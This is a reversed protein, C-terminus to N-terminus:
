SKSNIQRKLKDVTKADQPEEAWNVCASGIFINISLNSNIKYLRYKCEYKSRSPPHSPSRVSRRLVTRRHVTRSHVTRSFKGFFTSPVNSDRSVWMSGIVILPASICVQSLQLLESFRYYVKDQLDLVRCFCSLIWRWTFEWNNWHPGHNVSLSKLFFIANILIM